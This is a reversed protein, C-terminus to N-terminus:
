DFMSLDYHIPKDGFYRKLVKERRDMRGDVNINPDHGLKAKFSGDSIEYEMTTWRLSPEESQRAVYVADSLAHSEENIYNVIEDLEQYQSISHWEDGAEVYLLIRDAGPNRNIWIEEGIAAYLPGLSDFKDSPM